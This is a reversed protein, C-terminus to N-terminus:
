ASKASRRAWPLAFSGSGHPEHAPFCRPCWPLRHVLDRRTQFSVVDLTLAREVLADCSGTRQFTRLQELVLAAVLEVHDTAGPAPPPEPDGWASTIRGAFCGLCATSGPWVLPGLGVTSRYALDVLVHPVELAQTRDLTARWSADARVVLVLSAQELEARVLGAHASALADVRAMFATSSEGIALWGYRVLDPAAALGRHVAGAVSLRELLTAVSPESRALEDLADRQFADHFRAALAGDLEDVLYLEDAGALMVLRGSELM